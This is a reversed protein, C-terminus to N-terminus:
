GLQNIQQKIREIELDIKSQPKTRPKKSLTIQKTKPSPNIPKQKTTRATKPLAQLLRDLSKTAETLQRKMEKVKTAKSKGLVKFKAQAKKINLVNIASGLLAKRTDAFSNNNIKVYSFDEIAM